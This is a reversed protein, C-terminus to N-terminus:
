STQAEKGRQVVTTLWGVLKNFRFALIGFVFYDAMQLCVDLIHEDHAPPGYSVDDDCRILM